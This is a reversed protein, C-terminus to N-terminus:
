EEIYARVLAALNGNPTRVIADFATKLTAWGAHETNMVTLSNSGQGVAVWAEDGDGDIVKALDPMPYSYRYIQGTVTDEGELIIRLKAQAIPSSAKGPGNDEIEVFEGWSHDRGRSWLDLQTVLALNAAQFAAYSAHQSPLSVDLSTTRMDGDFDDKSVVIRAAM